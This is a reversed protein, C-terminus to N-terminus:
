PDADFILTVDGRYRAGPHDLMARVAPGEIAFRVRSPRGLAVPDAMFVPAPPRASLALNVAERGSDADRFGPLTVSVELPADDSPATTNRIGCRGDPQLFECEMTVSFRGSSTLSFPVEQVLAQPVVGHDTWNRWGGEPALVAHESGPPVVLQFAHQVELQFHVNVVRETLEVRHGLDFDAGEGTGGVTYTTSGTYLGSRMRLPTPTELAYVFDLAEIRYNNTDVWHLACASTGQGGDTRLMMRMVSRTSYGTIGFRCNRPNGTSWFVDKGDGERDSFRMAAGIIRLELDFRTGDEEATVTVTRPAPMGIYFGDPGYDTQRLAHKVGRVQTDISWWNNRLCTSLHSAACVGTWPTTNVFGRQNPDNVDPIFEASIYVDAALGSCMGGAFLLVGALCRAFASM